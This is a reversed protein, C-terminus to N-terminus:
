RKEYFNVKKIVFSNIALIAIIVGKKCSIICAIVYSTDFLGLFEAV